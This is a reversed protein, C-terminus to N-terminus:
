TDQGFSKKLTDELYKLGYSRMQKLKNHLNDLEFKKWDYKKPLNDTYRRMIHLDEVLNIIRSNMSYKDNAKFRPLVYFPTNFICSFATAHFSDTLVLNANAINYLFEEVGMPCNIVNRNSKDWSVHSFDLYAAFKIQM